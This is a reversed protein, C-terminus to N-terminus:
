ERTLTTLLGVVISASVLHMVVMTWFIALSMGPVPMLGKLAMAPTLLSVCLAVFAVVRYIRIPRRAFRSVLVFVLLALLLYVITSGIITAAQLYQFSEPVGFFAVAITRIILNAIVACGIALPGVWVLKRIAVHERTYTSVM